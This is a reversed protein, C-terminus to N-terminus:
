INNKWKFSIWGLARVAIFYAIASFVACKKLLVTKQLNADACMRWLFGIDATLRDMRTGGKSYNDDHIKASANFLFWMPPRLWKQTFKFGVHNEEKM